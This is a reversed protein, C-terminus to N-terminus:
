VIEQNDLSSQVEALTKGGATKIAQKLAVLDAKETKLKDITIQLSQADIRFSELQTNLVDLRANVEDLSTEEERFRETIPTIKKVRTESIKEIIYPM